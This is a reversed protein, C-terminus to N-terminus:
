GADWYGKGYNKNIKHKVMEQVSGFTHPTLDPGSPQEAITAGLNGGTFIVNVFPLIMGISIGGFVAVLMMLLLASTFRKWYPKLFSLLRLYIKLSEM